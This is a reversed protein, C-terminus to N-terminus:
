SGRGGGKENVAAAIRPDDLLAILKQSSVPKPRLAAELADLFPQLACRHGVTQIAGTDKSRSVLAQAAAYVADGAIREASAEQDFVPPVGNALTTRVLGRIDALADIAEDRDGEELVTLEECRKLIARLWAAEGAGTPRLPSASSVGASVPPEAAPSCATPSASAGLGKNENTM